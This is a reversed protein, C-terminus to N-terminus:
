ELLGWDRLDQVAPDASPEVSMPSSEGGEVIGGDAYLEPMKEYRSFDGERHIWDTDVMKKLRELVDDKHMGYFMGTNGSTITSKLASSMPHRVLGKPVGLEELVMNRHRGEHGSTGLIGRRNTLHIEPVKSFGVDKAVDRLHELYQGVSGSEPGDLYNEDSHNASWSRRGENLYHRPLPAALELFKGPPMSSVPQNDTMASELAGQNYYELEPIEDSARELRRGISSGYENRLKDILESLASSRNVNLLAKLKGM